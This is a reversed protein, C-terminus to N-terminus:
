EAICAGGEGGKVLVVGGGCADIQMCGFAKGARSRGKTSRTTVVPEHSLFAIEGQVSQQQQQQQQAPPQGLGPAAGAGASIGCAAQEEEVDIDLLAEPPVQQLSSWHWPTALVTSNTISNVKHV